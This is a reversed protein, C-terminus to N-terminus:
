HWGSFQRASSTYVRGFAPVYVLKGTPPHTIKDVANEQIIFIPHIHGHYPTCQSGPVASVDTSSFTM